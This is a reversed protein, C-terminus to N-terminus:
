PVPQWQRDREALARDLIVGRRQPQHATEAIRRARDVWEPHDAARNDREGPDKTLDYLEWAKERGGIRLAKWNGMRVATDAGHEWYLFEHRPQPRGAAAAGLLEPVLSHGTIDDPASAGALEALTPMIDPFSCLLDSVRGGEIRGPWRAIFPIRLGGEYLSGKYGRFSRGTRPDVNPSFFGNPHEPNRFYDEGGNDGSVIVLTDREIGLEKLLAMVEGIQRDVMNVFAAYIKADDPTRQGAKWPRDKFLAWSPDDKPIGWLGHPPTWALYAFFPRDRNQRIFQLSEEVIRYQSFTDGTRFDGTNGPMPVEQSNRVLYRPFYTHAHVQDYYGFFTDFGHNEPVGSTGRGGLGWKGFGGTTYGASKLVSALTAEREAIPAFGDNSRVSMRGAHKGTMLACRTPACVPGGALCQTFRVGESALRDMVPTQLTPHGLGSQEYYGLEDLLIYVVNPPRDAAEACAASGGSLCLGVALRASAGSRFAMGNQRTNMTNEKREMGDLKKLTSGWAATAM